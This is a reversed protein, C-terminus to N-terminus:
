HHSKVLNSAAKSIHWAKLWKRFQLFLKNKTSKKLHILFILFGKINKLLDLDNHNGDVIDCDKIWKDIHNSRYEQNEILRSFEFLQKIKIKPDLKAADEITDVTRCFLYAILVSRHLDGRLVRINLAFTRSVKILTQNCYTWDDM